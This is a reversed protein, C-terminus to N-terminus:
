LFQEELVRAELNNEPDFLLNINVTDKQRVTVDVVHHLELYDALANVPRKCHQQVEFHVEAKQPIIAGQWRRPRFPSIPMLSLVNSNLPLIPGRVSFNYAPSGAPTSVLVGDCILSSIREIGDIKILIDAAQSSQRLLSVENLALATMEKKEAVAHMELPHLVTKLAKNLRVILDESRYENLLFGFRGQNMGYFPIGENIYKHMTKLLFGDGGVVVIVDAKTVPYQGYVKTLYQFCDQARETRDATFYLKM